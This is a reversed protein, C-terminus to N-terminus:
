GLASRAVIVNPLSFREATNPARHHTHIDIYPHRTARAADM